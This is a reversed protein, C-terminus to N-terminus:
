VPLPDRREAWCCRTRPSPAFYKRAEYLDALGRTISATENAIDTPSNCDTWIRANKGINSKRKLM